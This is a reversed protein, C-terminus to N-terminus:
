KRKVWEFGSELTIQAVDVDGGVSRTEATYYKIKSEIEVLLQSFENMEKLPLSAVSGRMKSRRKIVEEHFSGSVMLSLEELIQPTIATLAKSTTKEGFGPLTFLKESLKEPLETMMKSLMKMHVENRFDDNIGNILTQMQIRQAFPLIFSQRTSSYGEEGSKGVTETNDPSITFTQTKTTFQKSKETLIPAIDLRVLKPYFEKSGYGMICVTSKLQQLGSEWFHSKFISTEDAMLDNLVAKVFDSSINIEEFGEIEESVQEHVNNAVRLLHRNWSDTEKLNAPMMEYLSEVSSSLTQNKIENFDILQEDTPGGPLFNYGNADVDVFPSVTKIYECIGKCIGFALAEDNLKHGNHSNSKQIFDTFKSAYDEVYDPITKENGLCEKQFRWIIHSWSQGSSIFNASGSILFAIRHPAGDESPKLEIIKNVSNFTKRGGVTVASDSSVSIGSSNMLVLQSTM